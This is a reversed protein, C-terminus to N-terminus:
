CRTGLTKEAHAYRAKASNSLRKMPENPGNLLAAFPQLTLREIIERTQGTVASVLDIAENSPFQWHAKRNGILKTIWRYHPLHNARTLAFIYGMLSEGPNPPPRRLLRPQSRTMSATFSRGSTTSPKTRSLESHHSDNACLFDVRWSSTKVPPTWCM